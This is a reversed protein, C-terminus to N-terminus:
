KVRELSCETSCSVRVPETEDEWPQHSVDLAQFEKGCTPCKAVAKMNTGYAGVM